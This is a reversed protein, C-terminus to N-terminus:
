KFPPLTKGWGDTLAVDILHERFKTQLPAGQSWDLEGAFQLNGLVISPHVGIRNAFQIVKRTTYHPATRRIFSKLEAQEIFTASAEENARREIPSEEDRVSEFSDSDIDADSHAIHSLEHGLTHWFYNVRDFRLSLAIVPSNEDLWFAAGDIKTGPLHQVIVLRIGYEGMLKPVNGVNAAFNSLAKLHAKLEPVKSKKYPSAKILKALHYARYCWVAQDHTFGVGQTSSRANALLPPTEDLNAINLFKCVLKETEELNEQPVIWRRKVMEKVPAKAYLKSRREVGDTESTDAQSLQFAMEKALWYDPTTDFAKALGIATEPTIAKKGQIIKNITPLPRAMITAL